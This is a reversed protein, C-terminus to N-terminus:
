RFYFEGKEDVGWLGAAHVVRTIEPEGKGMLQELLERYEKSLGRSMRCMAKKIARRQSRNELRAIESILLVRRLTLDCNSLL